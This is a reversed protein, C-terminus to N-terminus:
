PVMPFLTRNLHPLRITLYWRDCDAGAQAYLGTRREQQMPRAIFPQMRRVCSRGGRTHIDLKDVERQGLLFCRDPEREQPYALISPFALIVFDVYLSPSM